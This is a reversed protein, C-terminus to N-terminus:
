RGDAGGAPDANRRQAAFSTDGSNAKGALPLGAGFCGDGVITRHARIIKRRHADRQQMAPSKRRGIEMALDDNNRLADRVSEPGARVGDALDADGAPGSVLGGLDYAHDTINARHLEVFRREHHDVHRVPKVGDGNGRRGRENEARGGLGGGEYALNTPQNVANVGVHGDRRQVVHGLDNRLGQVRAPKRHENGHRESKERKNQCRQADEPYHSIGDLLAALFEANTHRKAGPRCIQEAHNKTM